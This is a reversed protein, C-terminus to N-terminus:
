VAVSVPPAAAIWSRPSLGSTVSLQDNVTAAADLAGGADAQHRYEITVSEPADDSMTLASMRFAAYGGDSERVKWVAAPNAVLTGAGPDFRFWVGSADASIGDEEFTATAVDASTVADWAADADATTFDLVEADTASAIVHSGLSEFFAKYDSLQLPETLHGAAKKSHKDNRKM